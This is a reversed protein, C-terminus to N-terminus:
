SRERAFRRSELQNWGDDAKRQMMRDADELVQRHQVRKRVAAELKPHALADRWELVQLKPMRGLLCGRPALVSM